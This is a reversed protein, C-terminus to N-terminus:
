KAQRRQTWLYDVARKQTKYIPEQKGFIIRLKSEKEPWHNLEFASMGIRGIWITINIILLRKEGIELKEILYDLIREKERILEM